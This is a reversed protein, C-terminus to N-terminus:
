MRSKEAQGNPGDLPGVKQQESYVVIKKVIIQDSQLVMMEPSSPLQSTLMIGM